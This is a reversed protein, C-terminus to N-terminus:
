HLAVEGDTEVAYLSSTLIIIFLSYAHIQFTVFAANLCIVKM